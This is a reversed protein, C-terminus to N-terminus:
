KYVEKKAASLTNMLLSAITMPGVGGPVPTIFSSKPAVEEYNVDGTLRFGSKKSDDPIRHMGVDIVVAGEKVMDGTVFNARGIAVILIDAKLTHEKLDKTKSHCITVTCNGPETNRAMLISMPSGVIHSRGIVVCHKGATKIGSRELLQMIGFPTAPLYSPLNLAMRGVNAPHFGDVDKKPDIAEIVKTESIHKPLPLQVIFGDVNPDNNLEHVKDLLEKESVTEPLRVLGSGFGIKECTRVKSGVYTESAGDNGVLIAVLHPTKGGSQKIKQVESAIEQQIQESIKKGDIIQSMTNDNTM